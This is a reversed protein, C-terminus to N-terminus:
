PYVCGVSHFTSTSMPGDLRSVATPGGRITELVARERVPDDFDAGSPVTTRYPSVPVTWTLENYWLLPADQGQWLEWVGLYVALSADVVELQRSRCDCKHNTEM